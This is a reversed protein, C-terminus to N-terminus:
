VKKIDYIILQYESNRREIKASFLYIKNKELEGIRTYEKPFIVGEVTNYEDSLTLFSM